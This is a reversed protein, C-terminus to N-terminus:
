INVNKSYGCYNSNERQSLYNRSDVVEQLVATKYEADLIKTSGAYEDMLHKPESATLYAKSLLKMYKLNGTERKSVIDTDWSVTKDNFNLNMRFVTLFDSGTIMDYTNSSKARDNV